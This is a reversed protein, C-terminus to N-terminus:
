FSLDLSRMLMGGNDPAGAAPQLQAQANLMQLIGAFGGGLDVAPGGGQQEQPQPPQEGAVTTATPTTSALDAPRGV